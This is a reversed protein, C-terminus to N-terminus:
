EVNIEISNMNNYNKGIKMKSPFKASIINYLDKLIVSEEPHIDFLFADYNYFIFKSKKDSLYSFIQKIVGVNIETELCQILYSLLKGGDADDVNYFRRKSIPSEIYGKSNYTDKNKVLFGKLAHFFEHDPLENLNKSYLASITIKKSQEYERDTINQGKFYVGAFYRHVSKIKNFDKFGILDAVIRIHYADYDFEVLKGGKFRSTIISRNGSSKSLTNISLNKIKTGIRGTLTIINIDPKVLKNTLNLHPYYKKSANLDICLKSKQMRPIIENIINGYFAVATNPQHKQINLIYVDKMKQCIEIIVPIPIIEYVNDIDKYSRLYMDVIPHNNKSVSFDGTNLWNLIDVNKFYFTNSNEIWNYVDSIDISNLDSHSISIVGESNDDLDYYYIVVDKYSIFLVRHSQLSKRVQKFNKHTIYMFM